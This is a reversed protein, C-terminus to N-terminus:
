IDTKDSEKVREMNVRVRETKRERKRETTRKKIRKGKQRGGRNQPFMADWLRQSFYSDTHTHTHVSMCAHKSAQEHEPM